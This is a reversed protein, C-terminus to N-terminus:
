IRTQLLQLRVNGLDASNRDHFLGFYGIFDADLAAAYNDFHLSTPFLLEELYIQDQTMFSRFFMILIPSLFVLALLCMLAYLVINRTLRIATRREM